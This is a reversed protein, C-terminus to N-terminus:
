IPLKHFNISKNNKKIKIKFYSFLIKSTKKHNKQPSFNYNHIQYSKYNKIFLFTYNLNHYKFNFLKNINFISHKIKINNIKFYM